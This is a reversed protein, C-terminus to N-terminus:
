TEQAPFHGFQEGVVHDRKGRVQPPAADPELPWPLVGCREAWEFYLKVLEAVKPRNRQSLDNLETRDEEMDYLEWDSGHESVLKWRGMRVARNGEHEWFMPQERTWARGDVLPMLSEGEIPIIVNGKFEAPYRAGAADLCTAMVDVIQVPEHVIAPSKVRAPWSLVFPTSIGGEHVWRKFRRFPSNSANAWPLDYSMFTDAPGPRLGPINGVTMTRGDPIPTSYRFPEPASSEEALFEACGGNDSLFMVLTNEEQGLQRLRDMIRGIGRDMRVIQAAYVAMRLDEWERRRVEQWPRSDEDRPSIDWRSDLMGMGKLEEHRATRLADWGGRYRGEYRAVDEEPAHLPWHPATYSVKIFFPKDTAANQEIMQVANDSIADTLYFDEPELPLLEDDDMLTLPFYYNAGGSVIGYFRDFGRQTPLSHTEDGPTWSAPDLLTYGGGVHWKGSMLTSYGEAQLVEAITVCNENLYGQYAPVGLDKVMHGVGAQHPGIGTLLSARSPCCRAVNYMSSFRLGGYGLRDLNPTEIESGYCGIDSFGMDDALILVINPRTQQSTM